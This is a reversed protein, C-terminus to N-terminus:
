HIHVITCLLLFTCIGTWGSICQAYVLYAGIMLGCSKECGIWVAWMELFHVVIEICDGGAKM